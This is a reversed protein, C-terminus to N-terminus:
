ANGAHGQLPIPIFASGTSHQCCDVESCGINAVSDYMVSQVLPVCCCMVDRQNVQSEASSVTASIKCKVHSIDKHDGLNAGSRLRTCQQLRPCSSMRGATQLCHHTTIRDREAPRFAATQLSRVTSPLKMCCAVLADTTM